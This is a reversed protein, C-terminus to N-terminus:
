LSHQLRRKKKSWSCTEIARRLVRQFLTVRAALRVVKGPAGTVQEQRHWAPPFARRRRFPTTIRKQLCTKAIGTNHQAAKIITLSGPHLCPNALWFPSFGKGLRTFHACIAGVLKGDLKSPSKVFSASAKPIPAVRGWLGAARPSSSPAVAGQRFRLRVFFYLGAGFVFSRM